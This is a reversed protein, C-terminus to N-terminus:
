DGPKTETAVPVSSAPPVILPLHTSVTEPTAAIVVRPEASIIQRSASKGLERLRLSIGDPWDQAFAWYDPYDFVNELASYTFPEPRDWGVVGLMIAKEILGAEEAKGLTMGAIQDIIRAHEKREARTLFRARFKTRTVGNCNVYTFEATDAPDASMSM